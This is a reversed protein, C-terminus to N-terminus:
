PLYAPTLLVDPDPQVSLVGMRVLFDANLRATRYISRIADAQKTFMAYNDELTLIELEDDPTIEDISVKFYNAIIQRAEAPNQKRFEVAEFWAKLFARIDEEREKVIVGRFVIVDPYLGIFETSRLLLNNGKSLAESTYPEYIFGADITDGLRSPVDEPDINVLTVDSVKLGVSGLMESILLEYSTGIPVGIRMGELERIQKIEPTSVVTNFSGNDYVAVVDLDTYKSVNIADGIAFLGGDVQGAALDPLARSFTEYYVPQVEVGHKEFLGQEQAIIITYDGWWATFEVILPEKEISEQAPFLGCSPLLSFICAIALVKIRTLNFSLKM